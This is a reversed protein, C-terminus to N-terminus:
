FADAVGEKEVSLSCKKTKVELAVVMVWVGTQSTHGPYHHGM